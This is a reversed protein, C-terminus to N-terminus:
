KLLVGSITVIKDLVAPHKVEYVYESMEVEKRYRKSLVLYFFRM